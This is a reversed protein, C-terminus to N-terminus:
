TRARWMSAVYSSTRENISEATVGSSLSKLVKDNDAKDADSLKAFSTMTNDYMLVLPEMHKIIDKNTPRLEYYGRLVADMRKAEAVRESEVRQAEAVRVSEVRAAEAAEDAARSDARVSVSAATAKAAKEAAAESKAAKAARAAALGTWM